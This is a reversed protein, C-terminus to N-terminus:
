FVKFTLNKKDSISALIPSLVEHSRLGGVCCGPEWNDPPRGQGLEQGRLGQQRLLTEEGM